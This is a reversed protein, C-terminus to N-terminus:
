VDADPLARELAYSRSGKLFVAGRTGRILQRVAEIDELERVGDKPFGAEVAGEGIAASDGGHLALVDGVRLPLERGVARHLALSDAGLENMGGLVFLRGGSDGRTRRHFEETADAVSAPSANYCDVYFLRGDRMVIEGRRVAPRWAALAKGISEGSLGMFLAGVAALAANRAMGLTSGPLSFAFEGVRHEGPLDGSLFIRRGGEAVDELRVRVVTGPRATVLWPEPEDADFVVAVASPSPLERFAGHALCSAPFIARGGPRVERALASKERAIAELSGMGALHVPQVNTILAIDPQIVWALRAIEGPESMGAEIVAGAVHHAPDLELLTLPVGLLNNLNARTAHGAEGLMAHLMDKTSTKGVSGTVGVVPPTYRARWERAIRQLALLTDGVCLQPLRCAVVPHVVLAAAAGARLADELFDHGDRKPTRLAVFCGGEALARTDNSFGRVGDPPLGLWAGQSWTEVQAATFRYPKM